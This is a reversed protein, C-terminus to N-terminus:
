IGLHIEEDEESIHVIKDKKTFITKPITLALLAISSVVLKKIINKKINEM